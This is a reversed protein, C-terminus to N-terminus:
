NIPSTLLGMGAAGNSGSRAIAQECRGRRPADQILDAWHQAYAFCQPALLQAFVSIGEDRLSGSSLKNLWTEVAKPHQESWISVLNQVADTQLLIDSCQEIWEAAAEPETQAWQQLIGVVARNQEIGAPLYRTTFNMAAASDSGAWATGVAALAQRRLIEDPIQIAWCAAAPPDYGAWQSVSHVVMEDRKHGPSLTCALNLSALPKVRALEYSLSLIAASKGEGAPLQDAWALADAANQLYWVLAVQEIARKQMASNSLESAWAAAAVSDVTAWRRILLQVLEQHNGPNNGAIRELIEPIDKIAFFGALANWDMEENDAKSQEVVEALESEWFPEASDAQEPLRQEAHAVSESVSHVQPRERSVAPSPEKEVRCSAMVLLSMVGALVRFTKKMGEGKHDKSHMMAMASDGARVKM